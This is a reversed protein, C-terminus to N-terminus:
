NETDKQGLTIRVLKVLLRSTKIRLIFLLLETRLCRRNCFASTKLQLAFFFQQSVSSSPSWAPPRHPFSRSGPGCSIAPSRGPFINLLSHESLANHQIVALVCRPMGYHPLLCVLPTAAGANLLLPLEGPHIIIM